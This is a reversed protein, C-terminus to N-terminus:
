GQPDLQDSQSQKGVPEKEEGKEQDEDRWESFKEERAKERLEEEV